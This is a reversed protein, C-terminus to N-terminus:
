PRGALCTRQTPVCFRMDSSQLLPGRTSGPFEEHDALCHRLLRLGRHKRKSVARQSIGLERGIEAETREEWFLQRLLRQNRESLLELAERVEDWAEAGTAGGSPSLALAGNIAGHAPSVSEQRVWRRGTAWEQRYRTLARGLVRSRVFAGLPVGRAPDFQCEAEWAASAAVARIEELWDAACWNPPVHWACIRRLCVHFEDPCALPLDSWWERRKAQAERDM